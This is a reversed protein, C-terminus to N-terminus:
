TGEQTPLKTQILPKLEPFRLALVAEVPGLLTLRLFNSPSLKEQIYTKLQSNEVLKTVQSANDIGLQALVYEVFNAGLQKAKLESDSPNTSTNQLQV